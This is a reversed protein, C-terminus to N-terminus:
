PCPFPLVNQVVGNTDITYVENDQVIYNYGTLKTAIAEYSAIPGLPASDYNSAPGIGNTLYLQAGAAFGPAQCFIWQSPNAAANACALEPTTGYGVPIIRWLESQSDCGPSCLDGQNITVGATIKNGLDDTISIGTTSCFDGIYNQSESDYTMTSVQVSTPAMGAPRYNVNYSDVGVGDAIIVQYCIPCEADSIDIVTGTSADIIYYVGQYLMYPGAIPAGTTSNYVITQGIVIQPTSFYVNVTTQAAFEFCMTETNSGLVVDAGLFQADVPCDADIDCSQGNTSIYSNSSLGTLPTGAADTFQPLTSSCVTGVHQQGINIPKDNWLEITFETSGSAKYKVHTSGPNDELHLQIQYCQTPGPPPPPPCLVTMQTDEVWNSVLEGGCVRRVRVNYTELPDLGTIIYLSTATAAFVTVPIWTSSAQPKYEIEYLPYGASPDFNVNIETCQDSSLNFAPEYCTVPCAPVVVTVTVWASTLGDGCNRRVRVEYSTNEDVATIILPNTASADHLYAAATFAVDGVQRYEVDYIHNASQADMLVRIADCTPATATFSPPDCSVVPCSPTTVELTSWLSYFGESCVRRVRVEYTTSALLDDLTLVNNGSIDYNSYATSWTAADLVRYELDIVDPTGSLSIDVAATDCGLATVTFSATPCPPICQIVTVPATSISLVDGGQECTKEIKVIYSGAPVSTFTHSYGSLSGIPAFDFVDVVNGSVSDILTATISIATGDEAFNVTVTECALQTTLNVIDTCTDVCAQSETLPPCAAGGNAPPTIVTRTRTRIGNVCPGWDSWASVVCNVPQPSPCCSCVKTALKQIVSTLNENEAINLCPIAPGTYRVCDTDYIEVCQEGTCPPPPTVEIPPLEPECQHCYENPYM